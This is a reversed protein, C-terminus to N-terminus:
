NQFSNHRKLTLSDICKTLCFYLSSGFRLPILFPFDWATKVFSKGWGISSVCILLLVTIFHLECFFFLANKTGNIEELPMKRLVQKEDWHIIYQICKWFIYIKVYWLINSWVSKNSTELTSSLRWFGEWGAHSTKSIDWVSRWQSLCRLSRESVDWFLRRKQSTKWVNWICRLSSTKKSVDKLRRLSM